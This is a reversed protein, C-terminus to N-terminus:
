AGCCKKYKKGSGCPCPDNRGVKEGDRKMPENRSQMAQQMAANGGPPGGPPGPQQGEPAAGQGLSRIDDHVSQVNINSLFQEFAGLSTASRFLKNAIEERIRDMLDAFMTYAEKKYEVLPDQQGYARLGVGQRLSDMTRLFEQWHTDIAQLAIYREMAVLGEPDEYKIKVEYAKKVQDIVVDCLADATVKPGSPLDEKKLGIPFTGDVWEVFRDMGEEDSAGLADDARNYIVDELVEYLHDRVNDSGVVRSRLGYVIERQKNMVDDYELTRKRISFNQQEVRRQAREISKNLM